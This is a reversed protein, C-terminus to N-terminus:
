YYIPVQPLSLLHFSFFAYHTINWKKQIFHLTSFHLSIIWGRRRSKDLYIWTKWLHLSNEAQLTSDGPHAPTQLGSTSERFGVPQVAWAQSTGLGLVECLMLSFSCPQPHQMVCAPLAPCHDPNPPHPYLLLHTEEEAFEPLSIFIWSAKSGGWKENM